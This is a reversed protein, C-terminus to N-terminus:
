SPNAAPQEIDVDVDGDSSPGAGDSSPAPAAESWDIAAAVDAPAVGHAAALEALEGGASRCRASRGTRRATAGEWPTAHARMSAKRKALREEKTLPKSLTRRMKVPAGASPTTTTAAARRCRSWASHRTGRRAEGSVRAGHAIEVPSARACSPPIAFAPTSRGSIGRHGRSPPARRRPAPPRRRRRGEVANEAGSRRVAAFVRARRHCSTDGRTPWPSPPPPVAATAILQQEQAPPSPPPRAVAISPAAQGSRRSRALLRRSAARPPSPKEGRLRRRRERLAVNTPTRARARCASSTTSPRM